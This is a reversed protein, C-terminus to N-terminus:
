KTSKTSKTSKTPSTTKKTRTTRTTTKSKTSGPMKDIEEKSFVKTNYDIQYEVKKSKNRDMYGRLHEVCSFYCVTSGDTNKAELRIPYSEYPFLETNHKLYNGGSKIVIYYVVLGM